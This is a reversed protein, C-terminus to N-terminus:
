VRVYVAVSATPFLGRRFSGAQSKQVARYTFFTMPQLRGLQGSVLRNSIPQPHVGQYDGWCTMDSLPQPMESTVSM